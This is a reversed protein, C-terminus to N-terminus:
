KGGQQLKREVAEELRDRMEERAALYKAFQEKSLATELEAEKERNIEKLQRLKELPSESGKLVPDAKQAYKLNIAAVKSAEEGSLGLKSRLFATQVRAREQPTTDKLNDAQAAATGAWGGLLTVALSLVLAGDRFNM